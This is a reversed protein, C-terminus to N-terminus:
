KNYFAKMWSRIIFSNEGFKIEGGIMGCNPNNELPKQKVLPRYKIPWGELLISL